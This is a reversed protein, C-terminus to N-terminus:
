ALAVTVGGAAVSMTDTAALTKSADLATHYLLNGSSSADFVGIHTVTVTSGVVAPFTIEGTSAVSGNSITGFAMTQRVYNTWSCETGNGADTPDSTFLALYPTAVRYASGGKLTTDLFKNELFNSLESM